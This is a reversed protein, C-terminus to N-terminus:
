ENKLEGLATLPIFHTAFNVPKGDVDRWSANVWHAIVPGDLTFLLVDSNECFATPWDEIPMRQVRAGRLALAFLRSIDSDPAWAGRVRMREVFAEDTESM